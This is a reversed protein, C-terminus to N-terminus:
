SSHLARSWSIKGVQATAHIDLHLSIFAEMAKVTFGTTRLLGVSYRKEVAMGRTSEIFALAAKSADMNSKYQKWREATSLEKKKGTNFEKNQFNNTSLSDFFHYPRADTTLIKAPRNVDDADGDDNKASGELMVMAMVIAMAMVIVMVLLVMMIVMAIVM